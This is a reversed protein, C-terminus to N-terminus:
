ANISEKKESTLLYFLMATLLYALGLYTAGEKLNTAAILWSFIVPGTVQGLRSTSRFIGIAKGAGLEQTVRLRLAFASQAALVLSNSLGLLLVAVSAAMLGDFFRFILFAGSGLICGLFIFAKKRNSADVYRSIFPGVYILCIGYIMLVRGITAQSVGARNLYIPSFYNLFGIVAISAPLSSFLMLGVVNRNTLFRWIKYPRTEKSAAPNVLSGPKVPNAPSFEPKEFAHRMFLITYIIVSALVAAGVAFVMKYGFLEALIAGTAGGCLSGSYIGAFLHALGQAKSRDDSYTIVFGQCAMLTLGYGTGVV